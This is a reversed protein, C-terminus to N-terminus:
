ASIPPPVGNSLSSLTGDRAAALRRALTLSLIRRTHAGVAQQHVARAAFSGQRSPDTGAAVRPPAGPRRSPGDLLLGGGRLLVRAASPLPHAAKEAQHQRERATAHGAHRAHEAGGGVGACAFALASALVAFVARLTHKLPGPDRPRSSRSRLGM